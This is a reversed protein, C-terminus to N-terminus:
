INFLKNNQSTKNEQFIVRKTDIRESILRSKQIGPRNHCNSIIRNSMQPQNPIGHCFVYQARVIPVSPLVVLQIKM